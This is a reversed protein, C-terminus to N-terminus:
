GHALTTTTKVRFITDKVASGVELRMMMMMMMMTTQPADFSTSCNAVVPTVAVVAGVWASGNRLGDKGTIQM